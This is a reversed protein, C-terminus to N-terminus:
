KDGGVEFVCFYPEIDGSDESTLITIGSEVDSIFKNITESIEHYIFRASASGRDIELTRAVSHLMEAACHKCVLVQADALDDGTLSEWDTVRRQIYRNSAGLFGDDTIDSDTIDADSYGVAIFRRISAIRPTNTNEVLPM